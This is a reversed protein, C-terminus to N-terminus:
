CHINCNLAQTCFSVLTLPSYQFQPNRLEQFIWGASPCPTSNLTPSSDTEKLSHLSSSCEFIRKQGNSLLHNLGFGNWVADIWLWFVSCWDIVLLRQTLRQDSCLAGILDYLVADNWFAFVTYWESLISLINIWFWKLCCRGVGLVCACSGESPHDSLFLFTWEEWCEGGVPWEARLRLRLRLIWGKVFFGLIIWDIAVISLMLQQDNCLAGIIFMFCLKMGFLLVCM